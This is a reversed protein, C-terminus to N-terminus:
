GRKGDNDRIIIGGKPVEFTKYKPPPMNSKHRPAANDQHYGYAPYNKRPPSPNRQPGKGHPKDDSSIPIADARNRAERRQVELSGTHSENDPRMGYNGAGWAKSATSSRCLAPDSELRRSSTAKEHQVLAKTMLKVATELTTPSKNHELLEKAAMINEVPTARVEDCNKDVYPPNKIYMRALTEATPVTFELNQVLQPDGGENMQNQILTVYKEEMNRARKLTDQAKAIDGDLKKGMKEVRKAEKLIARRKKELDNVDRVYDPTIPDELTGYIVKDLPTTFDEPHHVEPIAPQLPRPGGQIERLQETAPDAAPPPNGQEKGVDGDHAAQSLPDGTTQGADDGKNTMFVQKAAANQEEIAQQALEAEIRRMAADYHDSDYGKSDWDDSEGSKNLAELISEGPSDEGNSTSGSTIGTFAVLCYRPTELARNSM